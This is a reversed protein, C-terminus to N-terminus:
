QATFLYNTNVPIYYMKKFAQLGMVTVLQNDALVADKRTKVAVNALSLRRWQHKGLSDTRICVVKGTINTNSRKYYVPMKKANIIHNDAGIAKINELAKRRAIRPTRSDIFIVTYDVAITRTAILVFIIMLKKM